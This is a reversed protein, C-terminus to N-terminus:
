PSMVADKVYMIPISTDKTAWDEIPIGRIASEIMKPIYAFGRFDIGFRRYYYFGFLEGFVRTVRYIMQPM